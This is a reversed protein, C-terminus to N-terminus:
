DRARKRWAPTNWSEFAKEDELPLEVKQTKGRGLWYQIGLRQAPDTSIEQYIKALFPGRFLSPFPETRGEISFCLAEAEPFDGAEQMLRGILRDPFRPMDVPLVLLDDQLELWASLIGRLPGAAIKGDVLAKGSEPLAGQSRYAEIQRKQMSYCVDRCYPKLIEAAIESWSKGDLRLLGKESGMRSSQGGCLVLGLPRKEYVKLM